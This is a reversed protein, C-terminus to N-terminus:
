SKKPYGLANMLMGSQASNIVKLQAIQGPGGGSSLKGEFRATYEKAEKLLKMKKRYTWPKTRVHDIVKLMLLIMTSRSTHTLNHNM